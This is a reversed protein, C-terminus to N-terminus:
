LGQRCPSATISKATRSDGDQWVVKVKSGESKAQEYCEKELVDEM